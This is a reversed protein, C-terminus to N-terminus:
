FGQLMEVISYTVHLAVKGGREMEWWEWLKTKRPVM